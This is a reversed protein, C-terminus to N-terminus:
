GSSSSLSLLKESVKTGICWDVRYWLLSPYEGAGSHYGWIEVLKRRFMYDCNIETLQPLQM